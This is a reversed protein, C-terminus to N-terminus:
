VCRLIGRGVLGSLWRDARARLPPLDATVDGVVGGKDQGFAESYGYLVWLVGVVGMASISMMMMNLVGKARVMGGYFFALGPTMLLVLAASALMWATDGTDPVGMTPFNM